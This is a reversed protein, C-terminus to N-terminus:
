DTKTRRGKLWERVFAVIGPLIAGPSSLEFYLGVLGALFLV